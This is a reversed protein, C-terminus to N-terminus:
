QQGTRQLGTVLRRIAPQNSNQALSRRFVTLAERSQGVKLHAWGLGNLLEPTPPGENLAVQFASVAATWNGLASHAAGLLADRERSPALPTLTEVAESNRGLMLQARGLAIRVLEGDPALLLARSLDRAGGAADGAALRAEGLLAVHQPSDPVLRTVSEALRVAEAARRAAILRETLRALADFSVPDAKLAERYRREAAAPQGAAVAVDGSAVAIPAAADGSRHAIAILGRARDPAGSALALGVANVLALRPAGSLRLASEYVTLADSPRSQSALSKALWLMATVNLPQLQLVARAEREAGPFDGRRYLIEALNQRALSTRGSSVYGLAQLRALAQDADGRASPLGPAPATPPAPARQVTRAAVAAPLLATMVRGPMDRAVPLGAAHLVTPAVDIPTATRDPVAGSSWTLVRGTLVGAPAAAIIGYPRHWATAPGALDTPDEAIGATGPYFGHDSCVIILTDPPSADALRAILDDAARYAREIAAPGRRRDRVFLHSVSDVTELYVALLDPRAARATDVALASYTRTSAIITALHAIPDEYVSSSGQGLHDRASAYEDRGVPVYETLEDYAIQQPRIVLPRIRRAADSPWVLGTEDAGDFQLLQPALRDSVITGAVHEAPWTAWWGIVGVTRHHASFLSWLAPARRDVSRVPEQGGSPTDVVFDLVGHKDPPQGTAISTWIIPSVLPPTTRMVGTRGVTKLRAFAPLVGKRVLPDITFWDAADIGILIVPQRTRPGEASQSTAIPQSGCSACAVLVLAALARRPNSGLMRQLSAPEDCGAPYM